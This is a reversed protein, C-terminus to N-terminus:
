DNGEGWKWVRSMEWGEGVGGGDTDLQMEDTTMRQFVWRSPTWSVLVLKFVRKVRPAPSSQQAPDPARPLQDEWLGGRQGRSGPRAPSTTGPLQLPAAPLGSPGTLALPASTLGSLHWSRSGEKRRRAGDAEGHARGLGAQPLPLASALDWRYSRGGTHDPAGGAEPEASRRGWRWGPVSLGSMGWSHRTHCSCGQQDWLEVTGDWWRAAARIRCPRRYFGFMEWPSTWGRFPAILQARLPCCVPCQVGISYGSKSLAALPLLEARLQKHFIGVCLLWSCCPLWLRVGWSVARWSGQM